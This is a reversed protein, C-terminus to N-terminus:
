LATVRRDIDVRFKRDFEQVPSDTHGSVEVELTQADIWRNANIYM